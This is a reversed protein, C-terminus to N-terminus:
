GGGGACVCGGVQTLAEGVTSPHEGIAAALAAAAQTRVEAAESGMHVLLPGLFSSPLQCNALQWLATAPAQNDEAPDYRAMYLEAVQQVAPPPHGEGLLPVCPLAALAAARVHAQPAVAGAIAAPLEEDTTGSCLQKLLPVIRDRYAPLVGLTHYLLSLLEKRPM